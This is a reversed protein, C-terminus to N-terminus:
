ISVLNLKFNTKIFSTITNEITNKDVRGIFISAVQDVAKFSNSSGTMEGTVHRFNARRKKRWALIWGKENIETPLLKDATKGGCVQNLKEEEIENNKINEVYEFSYRYM